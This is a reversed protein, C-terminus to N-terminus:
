EYFFTIEQLLDPHLSKAVPCDIGIRELVERQAASLQNNKIRISTHLAQVRRPNAAMVKKVSGEVEGMKWGRANAAIGMVTIICSVLSAAILDTPSFAEGKGHNDTPADTVLQDGSKTHTVSTRLDGQYSITVTSM